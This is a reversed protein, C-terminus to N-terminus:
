VNNLKILFKEAIKNVSFKNKIYNSYDLLINFLYSIIRYFEKKFKDSFNGNKNEISSM